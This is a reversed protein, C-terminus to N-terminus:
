AVGLAGSEDIAYFIITARYFNQVPWFISTGARQRVKIDCLGLVFAHTIIAMKDSLLLPIINRYIGASQLNAPILSLCQSHSARQVCQM